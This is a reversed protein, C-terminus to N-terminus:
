VFYKKTLFDINIKCKTFKLLKFSIDIFFSDLGFRFITNIAHPMPPTMITIKLSNTILERGECCMDVESEKNIHNAAKNTPIIIIAKKIRTKKPM